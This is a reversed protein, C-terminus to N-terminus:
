VWWSHKHGFAVFFNCLFLETGNTDLSSWASVKYNSALFPKKKCAKETKQSM